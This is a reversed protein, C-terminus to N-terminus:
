YKKWSSQFVLEGETGQESVGDIQRDEEKLSLPWATCRYNCM